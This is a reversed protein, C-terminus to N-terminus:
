AKERAPRPGGQLVILAATRVAQGEGLGLRRALDNVASLRGNEWADRGYGIMASQCDVAGAPIGAAQYRPLGSINAGDKGRGADNLFIGKLGMDKVWDYSSHGCHSGGVVVSGRHSENLFTISDALIIRGEEAEHIVVAAQAAGASKKAALMLGAAERVTQGVRLGAARALDNVASILGSEYNDVGDGISASLCDVSAGLIGMAELVPLGSIGANNKGRGADNLILGFPARRAAYRAAPASGHSGAVVVQGTEDPGIQAVSDMLVIRGWPEARVVTKEKEVSAM